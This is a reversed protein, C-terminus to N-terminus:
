KLAEVEKLQFINREILNLINEVDKQTYAKEPLLFSLYFYNINNRKMFALAKSILM